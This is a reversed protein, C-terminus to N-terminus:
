KEFHWYERRKFFVYLLLRYENLVESEIMQKQERLALKTWSILEREFLRNTTRKM